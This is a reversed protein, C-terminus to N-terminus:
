TISVANKYFKLNINWYKIPYNKFTCAVYVGLDYMYQWPMIQTYADLRGIRCKYFKSYVNDDANWPIINLRWVYM